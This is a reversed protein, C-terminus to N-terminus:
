LKLPKDRAKKSEQFKLPDNLLLTLDETLENAEFEHLHMRKEMRLHMM